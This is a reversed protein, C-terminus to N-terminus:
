KIMEGHEFPYKIDAKTKKVWRSIPARRQSASSFRGQRQPQFESSSETLSSTTM